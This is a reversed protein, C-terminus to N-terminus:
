CEWLLLDGVFWRCIWHCLTRLIVTRWLYTIVLTNYQVM